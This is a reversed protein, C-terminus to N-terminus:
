FYKGPIIHFLYVSNEGKYLGVHLIDAQLQPCLFVKGAQCKENNRRRIKQFHMSGKRSM